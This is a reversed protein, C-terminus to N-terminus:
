NRYIAVASVAKKVMFLVIYLIFEYFSRKKLVSDCDNVHHKMYIKLTIIQVSLIKLGNIIVINYVGYFQYFKDIFNNYDCECQKYPITYINQTYKIECCNRLIM